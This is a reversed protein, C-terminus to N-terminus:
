HEEHLLPSIIGVSTGYVADVYHILFFAVMLCFWAQSHVSGREGFKPNVIGVPTTRGSVLSLMGRLSWLVLRCARSILHGVNPALQLDQVNCM